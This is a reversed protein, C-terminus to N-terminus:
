VHARGIQYTMGRELGDRISLPIVYGETTAIAQTGGLLPSRDDVQLGFSEMQLPSLTTGGGDDCLASQSLIAIIPGDSVSELKVACQCIPLSTLTGPTSGIVDATSILDTSLVRVHSADVVNGNAGADVLASPYQTVALAHASRYIRTANARCYITGNISITDSSDDQQTSRPCSSGHSMMQRLLQGSDMPPPTVIAPTTLASQVTAADAAPASPVSVSPPPNVHSRKATVSSQKPPPPKATAQKREWRKARQEKTLKKYEDNSLFVSPDTVDQSHKSQSPKSTKSSHPKSNTQNVCCCSTVRQTQDLITAHDKLTDYFETFSLSPTSQGIAAFMSVLSARASAMSQVHSTMAPHTSLATKLNSICWEDNYTATDNPPRLERLDQILHHFRTLFSVIGKNWSGDLRLSLVQGELSARDTQASIGSEFTKLLDQYLLQANGENEGAAKSSYVRVLSAAESQVLVKTFVAFLYSQCTEFLAIEAPTGPVYDGDLVNGLGQAKAVARFSRHWPNWQKRDKFAPFHSMDRKIGKKFEDAPSLSYPNAPSGGSTAPVVPGSSFLAPNAAATTRRHASLVDPTLSLFVGPDTSTQAAFWSGISLITNIQGLALYQTEDSADKFGTSKLDDRTLELM